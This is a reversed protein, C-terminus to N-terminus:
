TPQTNTEQLRLHHAIAQNFDTFDLKSFLRALRPDFQSGACRAIETLVQERSLATRYSRNSSMADFTDALAIIRGFLPINEGVLREPYGTGDYREHHYLVGPLVDDMMPIDKLIRHGIIPHERITTFEDATLKGPKCLVSEPIGIKGIDHMLGAIRVRDASRRDLGLARALQHALMGVRESHGCTYPDKADISSTLARLTGLFMRHQDQFRSINEHFVGLFDATASIFQTEESSVDPDDGQKNGALLAGVVVDGHAIPELIVESEVYDALPSQCPSLLQAHTASRDMENDILECLTDRFSNIEGAVILRDRLTNVAKECDIFRLAVWAFPLVIQLERSISGMVDLTDDTSNVYRAVKFLTSTQEYADALRDAFLDIAQGDDAMTQTDTAMWNLVQQLSQMEEHTHRAWPQLPQHWQGSQLAVDAAIAQSWEQELARSGLAAVIHFNTRGGGAGVALLWSDPFPSSMAPQEGRAVRQALRQVLSTWQKAGWWREVVGTGTPGVQISGDPACIWLALHLSACRQAFTDQTISQDHLAAVSDM